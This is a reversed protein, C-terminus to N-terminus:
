ASSDGGKSHRRRLRRGLSEYDLGANPFFVETLRLIQAAPLQQCHKALFDSVQEAFNTARGDNDDQDDIKSTHHFTGEGKTVAEALRDLTDRWSGVGPENRMLLANLTLAEHRWWKLDVSLEAHDQLFYHIAFGTAKPSLVPFVTQSDLGLDSLHNRLERAATAAQERKRLRQATTLRAGKSPPMMARTIVVALEVPLHADQTQKRLENWVAEIRPDTCLTEVTSLLTAQFGYGNSQDCPQDEILHRFLEVLRPPAWSPWKGLQDIGSASM